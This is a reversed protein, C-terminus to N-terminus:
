ISKIIDVEKNAVAMDVEVMGEKGEEMVAVAMAEKDEEMVAAEAAAVEMDEVVAETDEVDEEMGVVAEAAM